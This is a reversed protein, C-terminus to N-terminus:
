SHIEDPLDNQLSRLDHWSLITVETRKQTEDGAYVLLPKSTKVPFAHQVKLMSQYQHSMITKSSKIELFHLQQNKEIICDVENGVHDRWFYCNNLRGANFRQKILDAIMSNEFLSGRLYHSQLQNHNEINLLHCAIGTDYFYLKPSKIVRKNFNVHYPQLLFVLYSAQLVSLWSRTTKSDIGCDRGLDSFNIIQGVRGACLKLFHQFATLDHINKIQRVDREIYTLLYHSYWDAVDMSDTYIKPYQGNFIFQEPMNPLKKEAYLEEISLPLLNLIATRGALTQTVKENLLLNQSGTLIFYGKVPETDVITQIYSLLEPVHQIEDLIVGYENAYNQLFGKPDNKAFDRNDYNEISIYHHNPFSMKALTTKGSQRPGFLSIVPYELCLMKLKALMHRQILM